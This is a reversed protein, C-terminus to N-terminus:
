YSRWRYSGDQIERQGGRSGPWFPRRQEESRGRSRCMQGGGQARDASILRLAREGRVDAAAAPNAGLGSIEIVLRGPLYPMTVSIAGADAPRPDAISMRLQRARTREASSPSDSVCAILRGGAGLLEDLRAAMKRSPQKHGRILKSLYGCDCPVSHALKRQSLGRETLLRRVEDGFANGGAASAEKTEPDATHLLIQRDAVPLNEHDAFDLLCLVDTDYVKALVLLMYVSPKRGGDPWQEYECLHPGTMSTRANPDAEEEAARANFRGAAQDLTWGHAIRYAKRPRLRYRRALEAAIEDYGLGLVRMRERAADVEAKFSKVGKHALDDPASRRATDSQKATERVTDEQAMAPM